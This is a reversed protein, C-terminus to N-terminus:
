RCRRRARVALPRRPLGAPHDHPDARVDREDAATRHFDITTSGLRSRRATAAAPPRDVREGDVVIGNTSGLDVITVDGGSPPDRRAAPLRRPRRHAPRRRRRPRDPDGAPGAPVDHASRSGPSGAPAAPRPRPAPRRRGTAGAVAASRVRFRGTALEDDLEFDVRSRASSRTASSRPTSACWRPWSTAWRTPTSASGSTTTAASSSSSPTPCWRGAAPWSRRGTTAARAPPRQRDRGAPGRGQLGQRLRRQRPEELRREFRQLVGVAGGRARRGTPCPPRLRDSVPFRPWTITGPGDHSRNGAPRLVGGYAGTVARRRPTAAARGAAPARNAKRPERSHRFLCVRM